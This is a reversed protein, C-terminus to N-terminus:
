EDGGRLLAAKLVDVAVEVRESLHDPFSNRTSYCWSELASLLMLTELIQEKNM